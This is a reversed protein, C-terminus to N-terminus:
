VRKKVEGFAYLLESAIQDSRESYKRTELKTGDFLKPDEYTLKIRKEAGPIFPCNEDAHNCTMLAAFNEKPNAEDDYVKSFTTFTNEPEGFDVEYVPNEGEEVVMISFGARRLAEVANVNFATAETGGSYTTVKPIQYYAAATQAWVQSLHSRRSNHTCIFNLRVEEGNKVKGVVYEMLEELTAKREDTLQAQLAIAKNVTEELLAFIM